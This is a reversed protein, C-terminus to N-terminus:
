CARASESACARVCGRVGVYVWLLVCMCLRACVFLCVCVSDCYWVFVCACMCLVCEKQGDYVSWLAVSEINEM